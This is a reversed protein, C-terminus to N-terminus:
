DSKENSHAGDEKRSFEIVDYILRRMGDNIQTMGRQRQDWSSMAHYRECFLLLSRKAKGKGGLPGMDLTGRRFIRVIREMSPSLLRKEAGGGGEHSLRGGVPLLVAQFHRVQVAGSLGVGSEDAVFHM